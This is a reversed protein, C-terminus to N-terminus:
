RTVGPVSPVASGAADEAQRVGFGGVAVASQARAGPAAAGFLGMLALAGGAVMRRRLQVM